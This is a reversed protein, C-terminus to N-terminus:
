AQGHLLAGTGYTVNVFFFHWKLQQQMVNGPHTRSSILVGPIERLMWVLGKDLHPVPISDPISNSSSGVCFLLCVFLTMSDGLIRVLSKDSYAPQCALFPSVTFKSGRGSGHWGVHTCYQSPKKGCNGNTFCRKGIQHSCLGIGQLCPRTSTLIESPYKNSDSHGKLICLPGM